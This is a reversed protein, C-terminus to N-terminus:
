YPARGYQNETSQSPQCFLVILYIALGLPILGFFLMIGFSAGLSSPSSTGNLSDILAAGVSVLTI